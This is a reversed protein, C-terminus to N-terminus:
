SFRDRLAGDRRDREPTRIAYVAVEGLDDEAYGEFALGIKERLIALADAVTAPAPEHLYKLVNPNAGLRILNGADAETMERLRLRETELVMQRIKM